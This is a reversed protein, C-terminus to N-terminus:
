SKPPMAGIQFMAGLWEEVHWTQVVRGNCIQHIDIAMITLPKGTATVGSFAGRQTATITSRVVVKDGDAISDENKVHFDPFSALFGDLAGKMGERGPGQGPALPVDVWDDALVADLMPKSHTNFAEYFNRVLAINEAPTGPSECTNAAYSPAAALASLALAIAFIRM